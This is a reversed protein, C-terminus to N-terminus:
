NYLLYKKRKIKYELLEPEWYIKMEAEPTGNIIMKKMKDTGALLDFFNNDNFFPINKSSLDKYFDILYSLDLGDKSPTVEKLNVGYCLKNELKPYKAGPGSIPTFTHHGQYNPHGIQQFPAKTGRGVSVSTGEFFCISPYHGIAINNPLNPSPNIPLIYVSDHTYNAIQIVNINAQIGEKLWKEGNIMQAYEGITLGYVVPVPHMGVFSKFDPELVPGDIYSALPNPRDLIILSKDNEAASQMVYHLTSIYTYFRVGVDQIDFLLIDVDMLDSSKPQKNDGYLSKIPIGNYREVDDDIKAGADANGKFGHEPSFIKTVEIGKGTLFNVLHQSGVMSTHNVIVGVKRNKLLPLYEIPRDAGPLIRHQVPQSSTSVNDCSLCATLILFINLILKM